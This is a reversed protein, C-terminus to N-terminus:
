LGLGLSLFTSTVAPPLQSADDTTAGNMEPFSNSNSVNHMAPAAWPARRELAPGAKFADYCDSGLDNRGDLWPLSALANSAWAPTPSPMTLNPPSGRAHGRQSTSPRLMSMRMGAAARHQKAGTWPSENLSASPMETKSNPGASAQAFVEDDARNSCAASQEENDSPRSFQPSRAPAGAYKTKGACGPVKLVRSLEYNAQQARMAAIAVQNNHSSAQAARFAMDTGGFADRGLLQSHLQNDFLSPLSADPKPQRNASSAKQQQRMMANSRHVIATAYTLIGIDDTPPTPLGDPVDTLAAALRAMSLKLEMQHQRDDLNKTTPRPGGQVYNSSPGTVNVAKRRGYMDIEVDYEVPELDHLTRFGEAYVATQHVFIDESGDEPTIFGYGKLDDFWKCVGRLRRQIIRGTSSHQSKKDASRSKNKNHTLM